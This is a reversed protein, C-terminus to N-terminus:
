LEDQPRAGAPPEEMMRKKPNPREDAARERLVTGGGASGEAHSGQQQQEQEKTGDAMKGVEDSLRTEEDKRMEAESREVRGGGLGVKISPKEMGAARKPFGGAASPQIKLSTTSSSPANGMDSSASLGASGSAVGQGASIGFLLNLVTYLFGLCLRIGLRIPWWIFYKIPGFFWRRFILWGIVGVLIYVASELYWTDSKQSSVLTSILGKASALLDDLTSYSENLSNLANTSNQLTEHAFRSRQLEGELLQHTRRLSATVDSSAGVVLDDQTSRDTGV